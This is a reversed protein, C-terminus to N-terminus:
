HKLFASGIAIADAIDDQTATLSLNYTANVWQITAHKKNVKGGIGAEKKLKNILMREEKKSSTSKRAKARIENVKKNKSRDKEDIKINLDTDRWQRTSIYRVDMAAARELFYAHIFELMKQSRRGARGGPNTDEVVIIEPTEKLCINWVLTAIQYAINAVDQPYPLSILNKKNITVSGFSSLVGDTFVAYGTVTAIDLALLRM